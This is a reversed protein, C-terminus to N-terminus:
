KKRKRRYGKLNEETLKVIEDAAMESFEDLHNEINQTSKKASDEIIKASHQVSMKYLNKSQLVYPLSAELKGEIGSYREALYAKNKNWLEDNKYMPYKSVLQKRLQKEYQRAGTATSTVQGLFALAQAYHSRLEFWNKGTATFATFKNSGKNIGNLAALAPSLVADGRAQAKELNQIRRNAMQFVRNVEKKVDPHEKLAGKIGDLLNRKFKQNKSKVAKESFTFKLQM